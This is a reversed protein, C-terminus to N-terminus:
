QLGDMARSRAGKPITSIKTLAPSGDINRIVHRYRAGVWSLPPDKLGDFTFKWPLDPVIRARTTGTADGVKAIITTGTHAADAPAVYTSGEVKGAGIVEFTVNSPTELQQGLVNFVNVKLEIKEGPKVVSEAPVIQVQTITPNESVPTEKGLSEAMVVSTQSGGEAAVCYLGTTSPFYLRGDAM